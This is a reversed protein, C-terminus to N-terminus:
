PCSRLEQTLEALRRDRNADDMYVRDGQGNVSSIRVGSALITQERRLRACQQERAEREKAEKAAAAERELQRRKLEADQVAFNQERPKVEGSLPPSPRIDVEKCGPAPQDSYRTKGHEDICKYMQAQAPLAFVLLAVIASWKM